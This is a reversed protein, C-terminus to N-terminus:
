SGPGLAWPWAVGIGGFVRSPARIVRAGRDRAQAQSLALEYNAMDEAYGMGKQERYRWVVGLTLLREDLVFTDGDDTFASKPTIVGSGSAPASRAFLNSIYPYSAESSPAPYFNFQDELIIWWGPSLAGFGNEIITLWENLDAAPTYNWFWSVDDHIDQAALMRDYDNPLPFKTTIGDGPITAIKTLGQWEHSKMIDIAVENILDAIQMETPEQSSFVTAPRRGVLRIMAKQAADLVTM